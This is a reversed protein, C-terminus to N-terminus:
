DFPEGLGRQRYGTGIGCFSKEYEGRGPWGQRVTSFQLDIKESGGGCGAKQAAISKKKEWSKAGRPNGLWNRPYIVSWPIQPLLEIPLADAKWASPQPNSDRRGSWLLNAALRIQPIGFEANRIGYGTRFETNLVPNPIGIVSYLIGPNGLYSLPLASGQYPLPGSNLGRDPSWCSANGYVAHKQSERRM